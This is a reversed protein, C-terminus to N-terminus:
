LYGNHNVSERPVEPCEELSDGQCGNSMAESLAADSLAGTLPKIATLASLAAVPENRRLDREVQTALRRLERAFALLTAEPLPAPQQSADDTADNM